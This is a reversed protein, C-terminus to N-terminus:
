EIRVKRKVIIKPDAKNQAPSKRFRVYQIAPVSLLDNPGVAAISAAKVVFFNRAVAM